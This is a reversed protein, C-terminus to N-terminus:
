HEGSIGNDATSGKYDQEPAAHIGLARSFGIRKTDM